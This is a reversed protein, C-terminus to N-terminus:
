HYSHSDHMISACVCVIVRAKWFPFLPCIGPRLCLSSRSSYPSTKPLHGFFIGVGPDWEGECYQNKKREGEKAIAVEM